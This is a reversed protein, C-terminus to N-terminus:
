RGRLRLHQRHEAHRGDLERVATRPRTSYTTIRGLQHMAPKRRVKAVMMDLSWGSGRSGPGPRRDQHQRRPHGLPQSLGGPANEEQWGPQQDGRHSIHRASAASREHLAAAARDIWQHAGDRRWTKHEWFPELLFQQHGHATRQPNGGLLPWDEVDGAPALKELERALGARTLLRDGFKLGDKGLRDNLAKVM